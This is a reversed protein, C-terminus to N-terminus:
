KSDSALLHKHEYKNGIIRYLVSVRPVTLMNIDWRVEIIEKNNYDRQLIDGEYILKGNKDKLGTCQMVVEDIGLGENEPLLMHSSITRLSFESSMIGGSWIRFKFRDTMGNNTHKCNTM